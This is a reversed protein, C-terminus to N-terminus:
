DHVARIVPGLPSAGLWTQQVEASVANIPDQPKPGPHVARRLPRKGAALAAVEAIARPVDDVDASRGGGDEAGMRAIVPAYAQAVEPAIRAKLETNYRNRNVWVKTPYGGPQIVLVDIGHPVLEYALQESLAEVAFKTASYHGGYPAIVRGLQSSINVILGSKRARMGPLVARIMRQYGFVNTDFALRTAAMDQAEVPGTIGIGANNVLVDLAGGALKEAEAVGTAVQADDLVDIEVIQVNGELAQSADLLAKTEPRPLNRMSAIVKAGLSAFRLASAYGFGSSSGTILIRKGRLASGVGGQAATPAASMALAAGTGALVHRRSLATM